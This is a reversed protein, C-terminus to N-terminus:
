ERGIYQIIGASSPIAPRAYPSTQAAHAKLIVDGADETVWYLKFKQNAKAEWTIFSTCLVYTYESASKRQPISFQTASYPVDVDDVQLWATINHQTNSQNEAQLRYSIKYTGDHLATATNDANLVFGVNDLSETFKVVTPTDDGDATQNSDNYAKIHPLSLASGGATDSLINLYTNLRNFYLRLENNLQDQTRQSYEPQALILNPPAVKSVRAM